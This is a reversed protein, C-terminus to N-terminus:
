VLCLYLDTFSTFITVLEMNYSTDPLDQEIMAFKKRKVPIIIPELCLLLCKSDFTLDRDIFAM